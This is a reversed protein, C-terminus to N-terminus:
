ELLKINLDHAIRQMDKDLTILPCSLQIACQLFYADYAYINYHFALQLAKEMDINILRIPISNIGYFAALAEDETLRQRKVMATLANGAEYPLIEPAIAKANATLQIIREKDPENLVIALFISTDVIIDMIYLQVVSEDKTLLM